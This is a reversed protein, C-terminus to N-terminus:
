QNTENMLLREVNKSVSVYIYRDNYEQKRHLRLNLPIVIYANNQKATYRATITYMNIITM